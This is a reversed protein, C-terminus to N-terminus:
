SLLVEGLIATNCSCPISLFRSVRCRSLETYRDILGAHVMNYIGIVQDLTKSVLANHIPHQISDVVRVM